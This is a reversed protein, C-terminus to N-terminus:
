PRARRHALTWLDAARAWGRRALTVGTQRGLALEHPALAGSGIAIRVGAAIAARVHEGDLDLRDPHADIELATGTGRAAALVADFDLEIPKRRGLVRAFPHYLVDLRRTELARVIRATMKARDLELSAHVAGGVFDLESLVDDPVALTGGERIEVEAGAHARVGHESALARVTRVHARLDTPALATLVITDLGASRAARLTERLAPLHAHVDLRVDEPRVLEPLRHTRAADIEGRDERLEPEIFDVDLAAYVDREERSAFARVGVREATARARPLSTRAHASEWLEVSALLRAQKKGGFGPVRAVRGADLAARLDALTHVGLAKELQAVTKPGVGEIECLATVEAPHKARLADLDHIHGTRVLEVLREAIGEGVDPIARLADAGGAAVLASVERGSTAVSEAAREFARATFPVDDM